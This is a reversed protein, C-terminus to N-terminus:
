RMSFALYQYSAAIWAVDKVLTLTTGSHDRCCQVSVYMTRGEFARAARVSVDEAIEVDCSSASGTKMNEQSPM